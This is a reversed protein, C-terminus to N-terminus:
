LTRFFFSSSSDTSSCTESLATAFSSSFRAKRFFSCFRHTDLRNLVRRGPLAADVPHRLAAAEGPSVAQVAQQM